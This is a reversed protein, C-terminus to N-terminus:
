ANGRAGSRIGAKYAVARRAAGKANKACTCSQEADASAGSARVSGLQRQAGANQEVWAPKPLKQTTRFNSPPVAIYGAELAHEQGWACEHAQVWAPSLWGRCSCKSVMFNATTTAAKTEAASACVDVVTETEKSWVYSLGSPLMSVTAHELPGFPSSLLPIAGM